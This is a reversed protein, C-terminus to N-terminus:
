ILEIEWDAFVFDLFVRLRGLHRLDHHYGLYVNRGPPSEGLDLCRIAPKRM